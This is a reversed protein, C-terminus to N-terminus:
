TFKLTFQQYRDIFVCKQEHRVASAASDKSEETYLSMQHKEQPGASARIKKDLSGTEKSLRVQRKEQRLLFVLVYRSLWTM